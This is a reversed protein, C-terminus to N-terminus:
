ERGSFPDSWPTLRPLWRGVGRCYRTYEAGHRRRLVPEEYALVFAAFAHGILAGYLALLPNGFLCAQGLILCMVAVYMPNRVYRYAGTVVLRQTPLIPAPTGRGQLAFRAFSDLLLAAGTSMLLAGVVRFLSWGLFPPDVRWRSITWPIWGAVTGPALVLFVLSGLIPGRVSKVMAQGM